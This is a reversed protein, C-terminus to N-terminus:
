GFGPVFIGLLGALIFLGALTLAVILWPSSFAIVFPKVVVPLPQYGPNGAATYNGVVTQQPAYGGAPAPMGQPQYDMGVMPRGNRTQQRLRERGFLLAPIAAVLFLVYVGMEVPLGPQFYLLLMSLGNNLMHLLMAWKISYRLACYALVLGVFFAFIGQLFVLHYVGFLLSSLVIAFNEGFPKLAHLIAGRFIIEEFIPGLIVVYLIGSVSLYEYFAEDLGDSPLSLGITKLLMDLLVPVLTAVANFGLILGMMLGLDPVRVRGNVRVLDKVLPRIGRVILLLFAGAIIGLISILGLPLEETLAWALSQTSAEPNTAALSIMNGLVGSAVLYVIMVAISIGLNAAYFGTMALVIRM